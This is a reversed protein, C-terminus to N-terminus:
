NGHANEKGKKTEIKGNEITIMGIRDVVWRYMFFQAQQWKIKFIIIVMNTSLVNFRVRLAQM